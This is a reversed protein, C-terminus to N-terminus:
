VVEGNGTADLHEAITTAAPPLLATLTRGTTTEAARVLQDIATKEGEDLLSLLYDVEM